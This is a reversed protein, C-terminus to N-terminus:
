IKIDYSSINWIIEGGKEIIILNGAEIKAEDAFISSFEGRIAFGKSFTVLDRNKEWLAYPAYLKFVQGDVAIDGSIENFAAIESDEMYEGNDSKIEWIHGNPLERTVDISLIKVVGKQRELSPVNIKWIAGSIDREFKINELRLDPVDTIALKIIETNLGIDHILYSIIIATFLLLMGWLFSKRIKQPKKLKGSL